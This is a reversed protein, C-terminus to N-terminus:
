PTPAQNGYPLRDILNGLVDILHAEDGADDWIEGLNTWRLDAPPNHIVQSGMGSNLRVIDGAHLIYAVPFAYWQNGVVSRVRWGTMNQNGPGYNTIGIYERTSGSVQLATIRLDNSTATPTPTLSETQTATATM